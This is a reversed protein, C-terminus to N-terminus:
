KRNLIFTKLERKARRLVRLHLPAKVINLKPAYHHSEFARPHVIDYLPGKMENQKKWSEAQSVLESNSRKVFILINQSYWWEVRSDNWIESRLLDYVAFGEQEFLSIWSSQWKCNIHYTGDQGPIAASFLILDSMKCMDKVFTESREPNLHEAVELSIALDFKQNLNIAQNLDTNKFERESILRASAPLENGDLGLIDCNNEKCVSLWTGVGCGVDVVKKINSFHNFIKPLVISASIFSGSKQENYFQENYLSM